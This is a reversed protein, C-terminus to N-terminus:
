QSKYNICLISGVNVIPRHLVQHLAHLFVVNVTLPLSCLYYLRLLGMGLGFLWEVLFSLLLWAIPIGVVSLLLQISAGLADGGHVLLHVHSVVIRIRVRENVILLVVVTPLSGLGLLGCLVQM